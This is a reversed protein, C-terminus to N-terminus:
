LQEVITEALNHPDKDMYFAREVIKTNKNFLRQIEDIYYNIDQDRRKPMGLQLMWQLVDRYYNRRKREYEKEYEEEQKIKEWEAREKSNLNKPKLIDDISESVFM